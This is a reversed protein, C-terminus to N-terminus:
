SKKDIFKCDDIAQIIDNKFQAVYHIEINENNWAMKIWGESAPWRVDTMGKRIRIKRGRAPNSLVEELALQENLNEPVFRGTSGLGVPKFKQAIDSSTAINNSKKLISEDSKAYSTTAKVGEPTVAEHMKQTSFTASSSPLGSLKSKPIIKRGILDALATKIIEAVQETIFEAKQIANM